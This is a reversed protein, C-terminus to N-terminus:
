AQTLTMICARILDPVGAKKHAKEFHGIGERFDASKEIVALDIKTALVLLQLLRERKGLYRERIRLREEVDRSAFAVM